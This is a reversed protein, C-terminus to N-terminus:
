GRAADQGRRERQHRQMMDHRQAMQESIKQRQEPTLVAGADLMAQLMRKSNADQGASIKQRLAEAGAADIQPAAMLQAMQRQLNRQGERQKAVDARAGKFIDRIRTKQEATAGVQDLQREHLMPGMRQGGAHGMAHHMGHGRGDAQAKHHQGMGMSRVAGPAADPRTPQAEQAVTMTAAALLVAGALSAGLRQRWLFQIATTMPLVEDCPQFLVPNQAAATDPGQTPRLSPYVLAKGRSPEVVVM